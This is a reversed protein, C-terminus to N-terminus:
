FKVKNIGKGLRIQELFKLLYRKLLFATAFAYYLPSNFDVMLWKAPYPELQYTLLLGILAQYDKCQQIKASLVEHYNKWSPPLM